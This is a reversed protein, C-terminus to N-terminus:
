DYSDISAVKLLIWKEGFGRLVPLVACCMTLSFFFFFFELFLCIM